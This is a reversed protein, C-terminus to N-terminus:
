VREPWHWSYPKNESPDTYPVSTAWYLGSAYKTGDNEGDTLVQMNVSSGWIRVITGPRHDLKSPGDPLVFHVIQGISPKQGLDIPANKIVEQTIPPLDEESTLTSCITNTIGAPTYRPPNVEHIKTEAESVDHHITIPQITVKTPDGATEIIDRITPHAGELGSTFTSGTATANHNVITHKTPTVSIELNHTGQTVSHEKHHHEAEPDYQTQGEPSDWKDPM